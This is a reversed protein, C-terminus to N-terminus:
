CQSLQEFMSMVATEEDDKLVSVIDRLTQKLDDFNESNQIIYEADSWDRERDSLLKTVLIQEKTLSVIKLHDNDIITNGAKAFEFAYDQDLFMAISGSLWNIGLEVGQEKLSPDTAVAEIEPRISHTVEIPLADVDNTSTRKIDDQLILPASGAVILEIKEKGSESLKKSLEELVLLIQEKNM